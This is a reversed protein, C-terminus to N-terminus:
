GVMNVFEQVTRFQLYPNHKKEEGLTITPVDAYNHGPCLVTSDKIAKIKQLSEFLERPSSGPLDVRGCNGIFLTDGSFLRNEGHFCQSGPTHGPTHLARIKIKGVDITDGDDLKILNKWSLKWFEAEKKHAYVNCESAKQLAEVGNTHDPHGHTILIKTITMGEREATQLIAPPDWGPDVVACERAEKDGILYIFNQMPGLELQKFFLSM